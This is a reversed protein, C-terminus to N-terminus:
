PHVGHRFGVIWRKGRIRVTREIANIL